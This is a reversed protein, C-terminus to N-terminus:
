LRYKYCGAYEATVELKREEVIKFAQRRYSYPQM